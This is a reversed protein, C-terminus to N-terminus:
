VMVAVAMEGVLSVCNRVVKWDERELIDLSVGGLVRHMMREPPTSVAAISEAEVEM